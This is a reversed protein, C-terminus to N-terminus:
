GRDIIIDVNGHEDTEVTVLKSDPLGHQAVLEGSPTKVTIVM